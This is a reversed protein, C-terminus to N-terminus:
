FTLILMSVHNIQSYKIISLNKFFDIPVESAAMPLTRYSFTNKPMACLGCYLM